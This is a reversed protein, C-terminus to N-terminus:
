TEHQDTCILPCLCHLQEQIQRTLVLLDLVLLRLNENDRPGRSFGGLLLLLEIGRIRYKGIVIPSDMM